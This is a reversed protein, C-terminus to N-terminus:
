APLGASHQTVHLFCLAYQCLPNAAAHLEEKTWTFRYSEGMEVLRVALVKLHLSDQPCASCTNQGSSSPYPLPTSETDSRKWISLTKKSASIVLELPLLSPLVSPGGLEQSSVWRHRATLAELHNQFSEPFPLGSIIWVGM